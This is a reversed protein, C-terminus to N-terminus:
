AGAGLQRESGDGWAWVSGDRRLAYAANAGAALAVVHDVGAVRVPTSRLRWAGATGIQGEIDDGWAWVRGDALTAYGAFGGAAIRVIPPTRSARGQSVIPTASVSQAHSRHGESFIGTCGTALAACPGLAAGALWRRPATLM